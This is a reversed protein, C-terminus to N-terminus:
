RCPGRGRGAPDAGGGSDSDSHGREACVGHGARDSGGGSDRDTHGTRGRGAPDANAGSDSDSALESEQAAARSGGVATAAAGMLVGSGVVGLMGRRGIRRETQIDDLDLSKKKKDSM